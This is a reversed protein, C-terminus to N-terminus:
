FPWIFGLFRSLVGQQANDTMVGRGVFEIEAEAIRGSQVTNMDDIDIPRVIGSVYLHQEEDNVLVARRGEVILNGNPLVERVVAPVTAVLRETRGSRGQARFLTDSGSEGSIDASLDGLAFPVLLGIIPNERLFLSSASNRAIDTDRSREANAQEEVLVNVVDGVRFARQDAFLNLARSSRDDFLSGTEASTSPADEPMQPKSIKREKPTYPAIHAPECAIQTASFAVTVAITAIGRAFYVGFRCRHARKPATRTTLPEDERACVIHHKFM